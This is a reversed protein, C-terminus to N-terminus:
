VHSDWVFVEKKKADKKQRKSNTCHSISGSLLTPQHSPTPYEKNLQKKKACRPLHTGDEDTIEDGLKFDRSAAKSSRPISIGNEDTIVDGIWKKTKM